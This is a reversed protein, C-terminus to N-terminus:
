ILLSSLNPLDQQAPLRTGVFTPPFWDVPSIATEGQALITHTHRELWMTGPYWKKECSAHEIKPTPVVWQLVPKRVYRKEKVAKGESSTHTNHWLNDVATRHEPPSEVPYRLLRSLLPAPGPRHGSLRRAPSLRSESELSRLGGVTCAALCQGCGEIQV